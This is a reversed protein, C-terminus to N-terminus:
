ELLAVFDELEDYSVTGRVITLAGDSVQVLARDPHDDDETLREWRRGDVVSHGDPVFDALRDGRYTETEGDTQEIGVFEEEDTLFGLRWRDGAEDQDAAVSTARWGDPAPEPALVRYDYDDRIAALVPEYEVAAPLRPEDDPNLAKIVVAVVILAGALLAM